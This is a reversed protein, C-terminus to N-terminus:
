RCWWTKDKEGTQGPKKEWIIEYSFSASIVEIVVNKMQRYILTAQSQYGYDLSIFSSSRAELGRLLHRLKLLYGM